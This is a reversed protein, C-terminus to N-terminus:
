FHTNAVSISFWKLSGLFLVWSSMQNNTWFKVQESDGSVCAGWVNEGSREAGCVCMQWQADKGIIVGEWWCVCFCVREQEKFSHQLTYASTHRFRCAETLWIAAYLFITAAHPHARLPAHISLWTYRYSSREQFPQLLHHLPVFTRRHRPLSCGRQQRPSPQAEPSPQKM